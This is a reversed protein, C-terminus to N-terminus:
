TFAIAKRHPRLHLPNPRSNAPLTNKKESGDPNKKLSLATWFPPHHDGNTTPDIRLGALRLMPKALDAIPPYPVPTALLLTDGSPNPVAVPFPPANFVDLVAKPPKQYRIDAANSGIALLTAAIVARMTMM